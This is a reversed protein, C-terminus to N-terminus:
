SHMLASDFTHFNDEQVVRVEIRGRIGVGLRIEGHMLNSDKALCAKFITALSLHDGRDADCIIPECSQYRSVGFNAMETIGESARGEDMNAVVQLLAIFTSYMKVRPMSSKLAEM